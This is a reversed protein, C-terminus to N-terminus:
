SGMTFRPLEITGGSYNEPIATAVSPPGANSPHPLYELAARTEDDLREPLALHTFEALTYVIEDVIASVPWDKEEADVALRDYSLHVIEKGFRRRDSIEALYPLLEGPKWLGSECFDSAFADRPHRPRREGWFFEMLCRTHVAFGELLLNSEHDRPRDHREALQIAAFAFMKGEYVLHERAWRRLEADTLPADM